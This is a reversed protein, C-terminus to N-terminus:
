YNIRKENNDNLIRLQKVWGMLGVVSTFCYIWLQTLLTHLSLISLAIILTYIRIRENSIFPAIGILLAGFIGISTILIIKEGM